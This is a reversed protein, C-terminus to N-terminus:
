KKSKWEGLLKKAEEAYQRNAEPLEGILAVAKELIKFAEANEIKTKALEKYIKAKLLMNWYTSKIATSIDIWTKAKEMMGNTFAYNASSYPTVWYRELTKEINSLIIAQTNIKVTFGIMLKEWHLIIKASDDSLSTFFFHMWECMPAPEPKVKFRIVDQNQDYGDSGWINAQKSIIVIWEDKDPITFLGYTGAAIMNGEITVDKSFTITTANNAGTRWVIGYPVLEGWIVRGKVGPRHYSITIDTLGVTQMVTAKPSAKPLDLNQAWLNMQGMCTIISFFILLTLIKVSQRM